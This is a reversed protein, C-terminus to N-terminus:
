LGAGLRSGARQSRVEVVAELNAINTAAIVIHLLEAPATSFASRHTTRYFNLM